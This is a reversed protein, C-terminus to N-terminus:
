SVQRSDSFREREDRELPAREFGHSVSNKHSLIDISKNTSKSNLQFLGLLTTPPPSM